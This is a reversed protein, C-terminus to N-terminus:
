TPALTHLLEALSPLDIQTVVPLGADLEDCTYSAYETTRRSAAVNVSCSLHVPVNGSPASRSKPPDGVSNVADIPPTFVFM